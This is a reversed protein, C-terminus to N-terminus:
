PVRHGASAAWLTFWQERTLTIQEAAIAEKIREIKGTGLVPLPKTPHSLLWALAVQEISVGGIENAVNGLAERVRVAQESDSEFLRGGALPSWVMPSIRLRQCLDATGDHLSDMKLVSLEIQNTVLPFDLRSALLDFQWTTFNSVGFYLVKGSQKLEVFAEAVEDANMLPDPRHILLLDVYDTKLMKLSNEASALIHAKGTDYHNLRHAPRAPSMTKIGCKTVLEMKQRLSSQGNAAEGFLQECRHQGYIDAHDFTTVGLELCSEIWKLAESSSIEWRALNMLGAVTRSFEPGEPAIKIKSSQM